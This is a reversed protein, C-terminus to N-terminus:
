SAVEVAALEQRVQEALEAAREAALQAASPRTDLHELDGALRAAERQTHPWRGLHMVANCLAQEAEALDERNRRQIRAYVTACHSRAKGDTAECLRHRSTRTPRECYICRNM